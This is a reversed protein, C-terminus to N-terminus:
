YSKEVSGKIKFYAGNIRPTMEQNPEFSDFGDQGCDRLIASNLRNRLNRPIEESNLFNEIESKKVM